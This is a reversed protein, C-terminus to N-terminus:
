VGTGITTFISGGIMTGLGIAILDRGGLVRRLGTRHEAAQLAEVSTRRVLKALFGDTLAVRRDDPDLHSPPCDSEHLRHAPHLTTQQPVATVAYGCWALMFVM